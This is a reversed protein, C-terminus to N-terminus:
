ETTDGGWSPICDELELGRNWFYAAAVLKSKGTFMAFQSSISARLMGASSKFGDSEMDPNESYILDFNPVPMGKQMLIRGSKVEALFIHSHLRVAALSFRDSLERLREKFVKLDARDWEAESESVLFNLPYEPYLSHLLDLSRSVENTLSHFRLQKSVFDKINDAALLKWYSAFFPFPFGEATGFHKAAEFGAETITVLTDLSKRNGLHHILENIWIVEPLRAHTWSSFYM